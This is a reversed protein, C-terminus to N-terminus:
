IYALSQRVSAQAARQAPFWSAIVALVTVIGLWYLFGPQSVQYVLEINMVQALIDIVLRGVPISLPVALLWSLWGLILGEGIFQGAVAWASAGIARMIGIERTRDLVNITLTGSLAVAGVIATMLAMGTLIVFLLAM